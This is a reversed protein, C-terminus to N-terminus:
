ILNLTSSLISFVSVIIIYREYDEVKAKEFRMRLRKLDPNTLSIHKGSKSTFRAMYLEDKRQIIGVLEKNRLDKGM